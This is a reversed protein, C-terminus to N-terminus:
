ECNGLGAACQEEKKKNKHKKKGAMANRTGKCAKVTGYEKVVKKIAGNKCRRKCVM